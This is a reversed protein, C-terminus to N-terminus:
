DDQGRTETEEQKHGHVQDIGHGIDRQPAAVANDAQNDHHDACYKQHGPFVSCSLNIEFGLL